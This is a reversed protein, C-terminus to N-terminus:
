NNKTNLASVILFFNVTPVGDRVYKIPDVCVNEMKLRQSTARNTYGLVTKMPHPVTAHVMWGFNASIVLVLVSTMQRRVFAVIKQWFDASPALNQVHIMHWALVINELFAKGFILANKLILAVMLILMM